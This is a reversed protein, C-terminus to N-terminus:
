DIEIKEAGNSPLRKEPSSKKADLSPNFFKLSNLFNIGEELIQDRNPDKIKKEFETKKRKFKAYKSELSRELDEEVILDRLAEQNRDAKSSSEFKNFDFDDGYEDEEEYLDSNESFEAIFNQSDVELIINKEMIM